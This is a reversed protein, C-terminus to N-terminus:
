HRKADGLTHGAIQDAIRPGTRFAVCLFIRESTKLFFLVLRAEQSSGGLRILIVSAPATTVHRHKWM